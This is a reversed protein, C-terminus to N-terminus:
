EVGAYICFIRCPLTSQKVRGNARGKVRGYKSGLCGAQFTLNSSNLEFFKCVAKKNQIKAGRFIFFLAILCVVRNM